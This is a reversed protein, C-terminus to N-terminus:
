SLPGFFMEAGRLTATRSNGISGIVEEAEEFSPLFRQEVSDLRRHSFQDRPFNGLRLHRIKSIVFFVIRDLFFENSSDRRFSSELSNAM